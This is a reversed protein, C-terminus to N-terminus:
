KNQYLKIIALIDKEKKPFAKNEKRIKKLEIKLCQIFFKDAKTMDKITSKRPCRCWVKLKGCILCSGGIIRPQM